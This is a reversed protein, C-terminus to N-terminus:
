SQGQQDLSSSKLHNKHRADRATIQLQLAHSVQAQGVGKSAAQETRMKTELHGYSRM